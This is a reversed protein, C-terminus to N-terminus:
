LQLRVKLTKRGGDYQFKAEDFTPPGFRHAPANNSVGWWEKPRGVMSTNLEGNKDADHVVSIAYGGPKVGVFTCTAKKAKSQVWMRQDGKDSEAPFGDKKSFISCGIQGDDNPLNSIEVVISDVVGSEAGQEGLALDPAGAAAGAVCLAIWM